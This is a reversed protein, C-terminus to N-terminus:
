YEAHSDALELGSQIKSPFNKWFEEDLILGM